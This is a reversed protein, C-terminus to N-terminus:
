SYLYSFASRLLEVVHANEYNNSCIIAETM